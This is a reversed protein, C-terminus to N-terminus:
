TAQRLVFGQAALYADIAAINKGFNHNHAHELVWCLVDASAVLTSQEIDSFPNPVEGLLLAVLRDHAAQVEAAPRCEPAGGPQYARFRKTTEDDMGPM